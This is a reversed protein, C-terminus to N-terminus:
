FQAYVPPYLVNRITTLVHFVLLGFCLILIEPTETFLLGVMPRCPASFITLFLRVVLKGAPLFIRPFSQFHHYKFACARTHICIIFTGGPVHCTLWLQLHQPTLRYLSMNYCMTHLIWPKQLWKFSWSLMYSM